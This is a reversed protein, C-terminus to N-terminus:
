MARKLYFFSPGADRWQKADMMGMIVDDSVRRFYDVIPYNDYVMAASVVGRYKGELLQAGGWKELWVKKGDDDLAIIPYIDDVSKFIKGVWRIEKLWPDSPHGTEFSGGNWEGM